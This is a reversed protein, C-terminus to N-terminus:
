ETLPTLLNVTFFADWRVQAKRCGKKVDTIDISVTVKKPKKKLIKGVMDEYESKDDVDIYDSKSSPMYDIEHLVCLSM